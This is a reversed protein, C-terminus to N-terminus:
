VFGGIDMLKLQDLSLEKIEGTNMNKISVKNNQLEEDGLVVFHTAGTKDAYKLQAKLSRKMTDMESAIGNRRLEYLLKAAFSTAQKGMTAFFVNTKNIQPINISQSDMIMILRELGIAFGIAPTHSGGCVEVLGDYRGGGCVTCQSGIKDSVFEFVSKTYYDLGRVVNKDITYEIELNDLGEKLEEFHNRCDECINDILAPADAAYKKCELEKCDLIRLPNKEYRTKCTNCLNELSNKFYEKLKHSYKDRCHPCGISNIKLKVDNIGLDNLLVKIMSIIEIDIEPGKAGFAEVGFQHFERYRGKQVNEYRYATINYFLKIPHPLLAMGKEIYSRVVGATGEPRLTISREGKDNFTYMEKQVVDTTDGVGRQYLETHEFVPLRIEKYGFNECVRYIINEVFKWKYIESPLIDKTGKPAQIRMIDVGEVYIHIKVKKM